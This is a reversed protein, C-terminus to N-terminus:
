WSRRRLTGTRRTVAVVSRKWTGRLFSGWSPLLGCASHHVRHQWTANRWNWASARGIPSTQGFLRRSGSSSGTISRKKFSMGAIYGPKRGEVRQQWALQIRALRKEPLADTAMLRKVICAKLAGEVAYRALYCAGDWMGLDLLANAKALRLDALQQFDARTIAPASGPGGCAIRGPCRM